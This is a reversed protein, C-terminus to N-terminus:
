PEGSSGDFLAWRPDGEQLRVVRLDTDSLDSVECTVVEYVFGEILPTSDGVQLDSRPVRMKEGGRMVNLRKGSRGTM